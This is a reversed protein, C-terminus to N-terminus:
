LLYSCEESATIDLQNLTVSWKYLITCVNLRLIVSAPVVAGLALNLLFPQLSTALHHHHPPLRLMLTCIAAHVAVAASASSYVM